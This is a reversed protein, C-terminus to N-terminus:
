KDGKHQMTYCGIAMVWVKPYDKSEFNKVSWKGDKKIYLGFLDHGNGIALSYAALQIGHWDVVGGTKIDLVCPIDNLKGVRDPTGAYKFKKHYVPVEIQDYEVKSVALFDMYADIYGRYEAQVINPDLLGQDYLQLLEHVTSGRDRDSPKYWKTDIFGVKKLVQTVSPIVRGDMTYEHKDPNFDPKM